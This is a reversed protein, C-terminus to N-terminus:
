QQQLTYLYSVINRADADTVGLVPMATGPYVARPNRIWSEMNDPTNTLMGAVYMRSGIGTLPPGVKGQAGRVGGITHCGGCGYHDIAAKGKLVDGGPVAAAMSTSVGCGSLAAALIAVAAITWEIRM